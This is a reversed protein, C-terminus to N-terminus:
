SMRSKPHMWLGLVGEQEIEAELRCTRMGCCQLVALGHGLEEGAMRRDAEHAIGAKGAVVAVLEGLLVQRVTGAAHHAEAERTARAAALCNM